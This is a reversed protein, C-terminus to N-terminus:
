AARGQLRLPQAEIMIFLNREKRSTGTPQLHFDELFIHYRASVCRYEGHDRRRSLGKRTGQPLFSSYKRWDACNWRVAEKRL